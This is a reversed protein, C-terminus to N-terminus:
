ESEGLIPCVYDYISSSYRCQSKSQSVWYPVFMTMSVGATDVNIVMMNLNGYTINSTHLSVTTICIVM